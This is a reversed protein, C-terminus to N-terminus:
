ALTASLLIIEGEKGELDKRKLALKEQFEGEKEGAEKLFTALPSGAGTKGDHLPVILKPEFSAALEHAEHPPVLDGGWVPVFLLDVEGIGEVADAPVQAVEIGGLHCVRIDDLVLTYITNIAGTPGAVGYGKIFIGGVEYEGPGSIVFPKKDAHEMNETANYLGDNRSVLVIEAGFRPQKEGGQKGYPNFAIVTDGQSLKVCSKGYYTLVM